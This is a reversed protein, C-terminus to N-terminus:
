PTNPQCPREAVAIMCTWTGESEEGGDGVTKDEDIHYFLENACGNKYESSSYFLFIHCTAQKLRFSGSTASM